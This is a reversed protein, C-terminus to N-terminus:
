ETSPILSSWSSVTPVFATTQRTLWLRVTPLRARLHSTHPTLHLYYTAVQAWTPIDITGLPFDSPDFIKYSNDEWSDSQAQDPRVKEGNYFAIVQHVELNRRAFLGEEAGAVGSQAVYVNRDEYPDSLRAEPDQLDGFNGVRRTHTPSPLLPRLVPVLVGAIDTYCSSLEAARGSLFQGARFTGLFGTSFDPYLYAINEGTHRGESDVPGVVCGGGQIIEWCVGRAVGNSHDGLFKLRGAGDFYRAFGHLVGSKFYGVLLTGDRFKVRVAGHLKGLRYEGSIQDVKGERFTVVCHGHRSGESFSGTITCCKLNVTRQEGGGCQIDSEDITDITSTVNADVDDPNIGVKSFLRLRRTM